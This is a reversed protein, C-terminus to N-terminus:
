PMEADRSQLAPPLPAEAAGGGAEEQQQSVPRCCGEQSGM